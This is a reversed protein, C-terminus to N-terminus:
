VDLNQVEAANEEIFTRRADVDTGMLVSFLEDATAADDLTVRLVDDAAALTGMVAIAGLAM